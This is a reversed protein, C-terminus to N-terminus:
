ELGTLSGQDVYLAERRRQGTPTAETRIVPEGDVEPEKPKLREAMFSQKGEPGETEPCM